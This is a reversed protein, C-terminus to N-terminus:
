NWTSAKLSLFRQLFIVALLLLIGAGLYALRLGEHTVATLPFLSLILGLLASGGAMSLKVVLGQSAYLMAERQEGKQLRRRESMEAVVANPLVLLLALPGAAAALLLAAHLQATGPLPEAGALSFLAVFFGALLLANRYATDKGIKKLRKFSRGITVAGGLVLVALAAPSLDYFSSLDLLTTALYPLLIVLMIVAAWTFAQAAIWFLFVRDKGLSRWAQLWGTSLLEPPTLVEREDIVVAPWLLSFAIPAAFLLALLPLGLLSGLLSSVLFGVGAGGGYFATQLVALSVRERDNRALEPLLALYPVAVVSYFFFFLCIFVTVWLFNVTSHGELPPRWLLVFSFLLFLAGWFMFPKRRGRRFHARDSFFAVVPDSLADIIRGLVVAASVKGIDLYFVMEVTPPPAYFFVIWQAVMQHALGLGFMVVPYCLKIRTSLGESM